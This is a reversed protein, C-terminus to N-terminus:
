LSKLWIIYGYCGAVKAKPSGDLPEIDFNSVAAGVTSSALYPALTGDQSSLSAINYSVTASSLQVAITTPASNVYSSKPTSVYAGVAILIAMSAGTPAPATGSSGAPLYQIGFITASGSLATAIASISGTNSSVGTAAANATSQAAAVATANAAIATTNAAINTTNTGIATTNATVAAQLASDASDLATKVAAIRAKIARLEAAGFKAGDSDLPRTPDEANITYSM